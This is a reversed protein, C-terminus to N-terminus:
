HSSAVAWAACAAVNCEAKSSRDATVVPWGKSALDCRKLFITNLCEWGRQLYRRSPPKDSPPWGVLVAKGSQPEDRGKCRVARSGMLCVAASNTAEKFLLPRATTAGRSPVRQHMRDTGFSGNTSRAGLVASGLSLGAARAWSGM